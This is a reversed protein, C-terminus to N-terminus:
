GTDAPATIEFKSGDHTTVQLDRGQIEVRQIRGAKVEEIFKTYSILDAPAHSRTQFQGFVTYLVFAIVLWIAAKSIVNKDM